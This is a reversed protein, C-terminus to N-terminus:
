LQPCPGVTPGLERSGAEAEISYKFGAARGCPVSGLSGVWRSHSSLPDEESGPGPWSPSPRLSSRMSRAAGAAAVAAAASSGGKSRAPPDCGRVLLGAAILNSVLDNEPAWCAHLKASQRWALALPKAVSPSMSRTADVTAGSSARMSTMGLARGLRWAHNSVRFSIMLLEGEAAPSLTKGLPMAPPNFSTSWFVPLNKLSDM